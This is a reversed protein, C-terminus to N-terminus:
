SARARLLPPIRTGDRELRARAQVFGEELSDVTVLEVKPPYLWTVATVFGRVLTSSSVVM